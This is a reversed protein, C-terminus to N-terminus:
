ARESPIPFFQELLRLYVCIFASLFSLKQCAAPVPVKVKNWIEGKAVAFGGCFFRRKDADM